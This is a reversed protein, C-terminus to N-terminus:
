SEWDYSEYPDCPFPSTSTSITLLENDDGNFQNFSTSLSSESINNDGSDYDKSSHSKENDDKNDSCASIEELHLNGYPSEIDDEDDKIIHDICTKNECGICGCQRYGPLPPDPDSRPWLLHDIFVVRRSFPLIFEGKENLELLATLKWQFSDNKPGKSPIPRLDLVNKKQRIISSM